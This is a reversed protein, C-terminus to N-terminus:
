CSASAPRPASPRRSGAGASRSYIQRASMRGSLWCAAHFVDGSELVANTDAPPVLGRCVTCHREVPKDAITGRRREPDFPVVVGRNARERDLTVARRVIPELVEVSAPKRVWDFAGAKLWGRVQAENDAGTLLIVLLSEDIAQLRAFLRTDHADGSEVDLIVADPRSLTALMLADGPNMAVDVHYGQGTLGLRLRDAATADEDVILVSGREPM